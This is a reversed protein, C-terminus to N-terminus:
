EKVVQQEIIETIRPGGSTLWLGALISFFLGVILHISSFLIAGVYLGILVLYNLILFTFIM